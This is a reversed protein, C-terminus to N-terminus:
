WACTARRCMCSTRSSRRPQRADRSARTCRTRGHAPRVRRRRRPARAARRWAPSRSTSSTLPGGAFARDVAERSGARWVFAINDPGRGLGGARGRRADATAAVAPLPEYEVHVLAARRDGARPGRGGSWPRRRPPGGRALAPPTAFAARAPGSAAPTPPFIASGDAALDARDVGRARGAGCRRRPTWASSAPMRMPRACSRPRRRRPLRVDDSYRGLGSSACM